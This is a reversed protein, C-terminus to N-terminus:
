HARFNATYSWRFGQRSEFSFGLTEVRRRLSPFAAFDPDPLHESISLMGGAKLIRHIERLGTDEDGLEGLVAIMFVVDFTENKFPISGADAACYLINSLGEAAARKRSRHLMGTQIDLLVIRGTSIRKAVEVSYFGSGAGVELVSM